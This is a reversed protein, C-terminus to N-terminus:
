SVFYRRLVVVMSVVGVTALSNPIPGLKSGTASARQPQPGTLRQPTQDPRRSKFEPGRAGWALVGAWCTRFTGNFIPAALWSPVPRTPPAAPAARSDTVARVLWSRYARKAGTPVALDKEVAALWNPTLIARGTVRGRKLTFGPLRPSRRM